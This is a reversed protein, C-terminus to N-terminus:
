GGDFFEAVARVVRAQDADTMGPYLPLSLVEDALAEAVPFDGRSYGLHAYAASLHPPEPYHLGVAIGEARLEAALADRRDSRVVFLHWAPESGQPVVPLRLDGVGDLADLYRQALVRRSANWEDLHRLKVTLVAAQIADLRATWGVREHVYKERQGHERLSRVTEALSADRTVLAGADGVAGLNKAPYFSFCAAASGDGPRYGDRAAGHAQAADEVVTLGGDRAFAEFARMDALQGFLHVPVVFRTRASRARAAADAALNFDDESVDVPIPVGGAQSVAEFTAVFTFAPVLVEDGPQLGAATLTLRLADLGSSLGVCNPAGCYRAFAEEFSRVAEGTGFEGRDLVDEIAELLEGKLPAHVAALDVFPVRQRSESAKLVEVLNSVDSSCRAAVM